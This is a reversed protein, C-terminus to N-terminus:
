IGVLNIKPYKQKFKLGGYVFMSSNRVPTWEPNYQIIIDGSNNDFIDVVVNGQTDDSENEFLFCDGIKLDPLQLGTKWGNRIKTNEYNMNAM